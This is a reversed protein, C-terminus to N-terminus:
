ARSRGRDFAWRRRPRHKPSSSFFGPRIGFGSDLPSLSLCHWTRVADQNEVGGQAVALLRRTGRHIEVFFQLDGVHEFLEADVDDFRAKRNRRVAVQLRRQFKWRAFLATMQPRARAPTFSM